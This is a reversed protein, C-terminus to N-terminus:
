TPRRNPGAALPRGSRCLEDLWAYIMTATEQFRAASYQDLLRKRGAGGMVSLKEPEVLCRAIVTALAESDGPPVLYGTTGQLVSSAIEGVKSAIVPLGAQMAEHAAICFGERRSPQIYLHLGALFERPRDGFGALTVNDLGAYHIAAELSARENGDGHIIVEFRASPALGHERIRALAAILVDYGKARHLRGLSGIRITEGSRWPAAVPAAPDASFIPWTVLREPSVKLRALTLAAVAESDAVWLATRAHTARLLLQNAPKLFGNHQWSVVPIARRWGILQGLLTARTLSTWIIDPRFAAIQRNLWCYAAVHDTIGGERVAHDIGAAAIAPLARRDRPTLGFLKVEAGCHRLSRFIAPVPFAAGGGEISNIIYAIRM